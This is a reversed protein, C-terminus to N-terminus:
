TGRLCGAMETSLGPAGPGGNGTVFDYPDGSWLGPLGLYATPDGSGEFGTWDPSRYGSTEWNAVAIIEASNVSRRELLWRARFTADSALAAKLYWREVTDGGPGVETGTFYRFEAIDWPGDVKM